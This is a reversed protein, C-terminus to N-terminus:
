SLPFRALTAAVDRGGEENGVGCGHREWARREVCVGVRGGGWVCVVAVGGDLGVGVDLGRREWNLVGIDVGKEDEEVGVGELVVM